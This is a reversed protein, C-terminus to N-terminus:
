NSAGTLEEGNGDTKSFEGQTPTTDFNRALAKGDDGTVRFVIMNAAGTAANRNEEDLQSLNQHSLTIAV